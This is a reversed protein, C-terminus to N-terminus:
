FFHQLPGNGRGIQFKAGEEICRSLYKKALGVAEVIDHGKSLYAAAASSFTCGTGHTNKTEIRPFSFWHFKPMPHRVCLCDDCPGESLHGGKIVVAKLGMGSLDLAALEMQSKAGVERQLLISAEPLNPTLLTTLPFLRVKMAEIAEQSLLEKGNKAMMVPDLVIKIPSYKELIDAVADIVEARHLMGIKVADIESDEFIAQLQEQICTVPIPYISKVGMTNQIPIATLVTMGYCGLASFTKLDAQIGAGSSGDFGAISLILFLRRNNKLQM